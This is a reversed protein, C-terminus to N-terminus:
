YRNLLGRIRLFFLILVLIIPILFLTITILVPFEGLITEKNIGMNDQAYVHQINYKLFLLFLVCKLGKSKLVKRIQDASFVELDRHNKQNDEPRDFKKVRRYLSLSFLIILFAFFLIVLILFFQSNLRFAYPFPRTQAFLFHP